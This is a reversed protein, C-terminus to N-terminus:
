PHIAGNLIAYSADEHNKDYTTGCLGTLATYAGFM